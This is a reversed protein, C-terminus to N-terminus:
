GENVWKIECGRWVREYLVLLIFGDEIVLGKGAIGVVVALCGGVNAREDWGCVGVCM